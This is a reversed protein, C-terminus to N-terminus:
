SFRPIPIQNFENSFSNGARDTFLIKATGFEGFGLKVDSTPIDWYYVLDTDESFQKEYKSYDNKKVSFADLYLIRNYEDMISISITGDSAIEREDVSILKFRLLYNESNRHGQIQFDEMRDINTWSTTYTPIGELPDKPKPLKQFAQEVKPSPTELIRNEALYTLADVFDQDSIKGQGWWLATVKIWSTVINQHAQVAEQFVGKSKEELIECDGSNEDLTAGVGCVADITSEPEPIKLIGQDLLYQSANIFEEDSIKEEGWWEATKKIWSPVYSEEAVAQNYESSILGISFFLLFSLTIKPNNKIDSIKQIILVMQIDVM